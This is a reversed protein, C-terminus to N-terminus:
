KKTNLVISACFEKDNYTFFASGNYKAAVARVSSLGVGEENVRKGSLFAGNKEQVIGDFSNDITIGLMDGCIRSKVSIYREESNIKRCAELANELCNGFVICLDLDAIGIKQPLQLDTHVCVSETKAIGTYHLIIVNSAHNECLSLETDDPLSRNYEYLYNTLNETDNSQLYAQIISLHHRLDHRAARTEAIRESLIKYENEQFTLQMKVMRVHDKLATNKYTEILMRTVVFYVASAGLAMTLTITIYQWSKMLRDRDAGSFVIFMIVFSFPIIWLTNWVADDTRCLLSKIKRYFILAFPLTVAFAGMHIHILPSSYGSERLAQPFFHMELSNSIGILICAYNTILLFVYLLRSFRMRVTVLYVLFYIVLWAFFSFKVLLYPMKSNFYFIAFQVVTLISLLVILKKKSIRLYDTFPFYCLFAYPVIDLFVGIPLLLPDHM